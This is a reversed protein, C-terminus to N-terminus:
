RFFICIMIISVELPINTQLSSQLANANVGLNEVSPILEDVGESRIRFEPRGSSSNVGSM